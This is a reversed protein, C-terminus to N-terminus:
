RERRQLPVGDLWVPVPRSLADEYGSVPRLEVGKTTLRRDINMAKSLTTQMGPEIIALARAVLPDQISGLPKWPIYNWENIRNETLPTFGNAYDGFDDANALKVIIPQIAWEVKEPDDLVDIDITYSGVNKGYTTEGIHIVNADSLFPKLNNIILESASASFYTALIFVRQLGLNNSTVGNVFNGESNLLPRYNEMEDHYRSNYQYKIFLQDPDFGKHILGSLVAAARIGGGGNYRVDLVLEQAGKTKLRGFADILQQRQNDLFRNYFLYGVKKGSPLTWVTDVLIASENYGAVPTLTVDRDAVFQGGEEKLLSITFPDNGNIPNLAPIDGEDNTKLRQGNVQVFLDGRKVGQQDAPSGKLVYRVSAIVEGAEENLWAVGIGMGSTKIIGQQEDHLETANQIWSFRDQTSLLTGFFSSPNQNLNLAQDGPIDNIWLYDKRMTDLIYQNIAVDTGGNPKPNDKRCSSVWVLSAVLMVPLFGIRLCFFRSLIM